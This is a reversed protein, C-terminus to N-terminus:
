AAERQVIRELAAALADRVDYGFRQRKMVRRLIDEADERAKSESYDIRRTM